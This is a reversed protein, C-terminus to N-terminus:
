FLNWAEENVRRKVRCTAEHEALRRAWKRVKRLAKLAQKRTLAEDARNYWKALKLCCKHTYASDNM